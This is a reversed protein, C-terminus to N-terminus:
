LSELSLLAALRFIRPARQGSKVSLTSFSETANTRLRQNVGAPCHSGPRHHALALRILRLQEVPEAQLPVHRRIVQQPRDVPEDIEPADALLQPGVIAVGAPGRNIRLQHDPHQDDAVAHADTGLATQTVLHM